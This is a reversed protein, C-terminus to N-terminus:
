CTCVSGKAWSPPNTCDDQTVCGPSSFGPEFGRCTSACTISCLKQQKADTCSPTKSGSPSPSPSQPAPAPVPSPSPKPKNMEDAIQNMLQFTWEGSPTVTDQSTDFIFVGGLNNDSSYKVISKISEPNNFTIWTGAETYGGDAGPSAFYAIASQTQNDFYVSTNGDEGGLAALIESYMMLGCQESGQGPKGGYTNKFPGCCDGQIIGKGGFAHPNKMNPAFWTHSYFPIGVVIKSSPVGLSLYTTVSDNISLKLAPSSPSYLPANPSMVQASPDTIDSVSYDYTMIHWADISKSSEANVGQKKAFEPAAQSAVTIVIDAGLSSRLESLFTQFNQTDDPCKGGEDAVKRFQQCSIEVNDTRPASCPYEWDIDIGALNHSSIFSKASSIFKQRSDASSVMKSFYSSPFNWGGISAVVHTNGFGTLTALSAEDNSEVTMLQYESEATCHGFPAVAWYPMPSTDAPPCFYVFGFMIQDTRGSISEVNEAVHKYPAPHYQAWNAFYAKFSAATSDLSKVTQTNFSLAILCVLVARLVLM